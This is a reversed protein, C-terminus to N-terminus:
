VSCLNTCTKPKKRAFFPNTSNKDYISCKKGCIPCGKSHREIVSKRLNFRKTVFTGGCDECYVRTRDQETMPYDLIHLHPNNTRVRKIFEYLEM